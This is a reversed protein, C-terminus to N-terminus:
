DFSRKSRLPPQRHNRRRGNWLTFQRHSRWCGNGSVSEVIVSPLSSIAVHPLLGAILGEFEQDVFVFACKSHQLIYAVEERALRYNIPLMVAGAESCGIALELFASSNKMLLSVVTGSALGRIRLFASVAMAREHLMGYRIRVGAYTVALRGPDQLAHYRIASSLRTM